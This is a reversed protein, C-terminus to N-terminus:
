ESPAGPCREPCGPWDTGRYRGLLTGIAVVVRFLVAQIPRPMILMAQTDRHRLAVHAIYFLSPRGPPGANVVDFIAQLYRDFDVVPRVYGDLELPEDGGNWWRHPVGRPFSAAEGTKVSLQRGNLVVSLTGARVHGEEDEAFHIHMPPGERHPPLSGKLELWDETGRKVRRFSLREGTHRNEIHIARGVTEVSETSM